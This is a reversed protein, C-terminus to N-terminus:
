AAISLMFPAFGAAALTAIASLILHRTKTMKTAGDSPPQLQKTTGTESTIM